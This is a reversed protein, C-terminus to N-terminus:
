EERVGKGMLGAEGGGQKENRKGMKRELIWWGRGNRGADGGDDGGRVGAGSDGSALNNM